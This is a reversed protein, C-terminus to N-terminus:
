LAIQDVVEIERIVVECSVDTTYQANNTPPECVCQKLLVLRVHVVRHVREVDPEKCRHYDGRENEAVEADMRGVKSILPDLEAVEADGAEEPPQEVHEGRLHHFM